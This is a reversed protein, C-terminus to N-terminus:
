FPLEDQGAAVAERIPQAQPAAPAAAPAAPAVPAGTAAGFQQSLMGVPIAMVDGVKPYGGDDHFVQGLLMRGVLEDVDFREGPKPARGGNLAVILAYQKSKPGSATSASTKVTRGDYAPNGNVKFVWDRLDFKQGAREGKQATVERWEGIEVLMLPYSGDPVDEEPPPGGAGIVVDRNNTQETM